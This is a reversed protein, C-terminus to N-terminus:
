CINRNFLSSVHFRSPGDAKHNILENLNTFFSGILKHNGNYRHDLCDIRINRDFDGNCLKRAQIKFHNWIPNRTSSCTETKHVVSYSGDENSKWFLLFPDPQCIWYKKKLNHGQWKFHIIQKSNSLEEVVIIIEGSNKGKRGSLKGVFQRGKSSVLDALTTEFHGLFDRGAIDVDWIEFKLKQVTEFNYDLTFKTVFDPNLFNQIVESRGLERYDATPVDKILLVCQPDSKSIIDCDLLHRCAVSIEVRTTPINKSNFPSNIMVESGPECLAQWNDAKAM